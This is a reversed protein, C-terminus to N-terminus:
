SFIKAAGLSHSGPCTAGGWRGERHFPIIIGAERPLPFSEILCHIYFPMALQLTSPLVKVAHLALTEMRPAGTLGPSGERQVASAISVATGWFAQSGSPLATLWIMEMDGTGLVPGLLSPPVSPSLTFLFTYIAQQCEWFGWPSSLGPHGERPRRQCIFAPPTRRQWCSWLGCFCVSRELMLVPHPTLPVRSSPEKPRCGLFPGPTMTSWQTGPWM